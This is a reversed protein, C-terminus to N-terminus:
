ERIIKFEGNTKIKIISSPQSKTVDNQRYNVIYDVANKIEDSIEDFNQPSNEGAVNASTSVIPNRFQQILKSSFEESTVRIGISGDQSILNKALNKADDFIITIPKDSAEIIQYAIEPIEKVYYSLMNESNVLVLMSKTEERKKIAYIRKVAEVNSADCGLGWITDTPYLIVGGKRLIEVAKKIDDFM